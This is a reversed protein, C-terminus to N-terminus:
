VQSIKDFLFFLQNKKVVSFNYRLLFIFIFFILTSTISSHDWFSSFAPDLINGEMKEHHHYFCFPQLSCCLLWIKDMWTMLFLMNQSWKQFTFENNQIVKMSFMSPMAVIKHPSLFINKLTKFKDSIVCFSILFFLFSFFYLDPFVQVTFSHLLIYIFVFVTNHFSPLFSSFVSSYHTLFYFNLNPHSRSLLLKNSLSISTWIVVPKTVNM